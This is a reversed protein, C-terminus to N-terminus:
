AAMRLAAAMDRVVILSRRRATIMPIPRGILRLRRSANNRAAETLSAFRYKFDFYQQLSTRTTEDHTVNYFCLEAIDISAFAGSGESGGIAIVQSIQTSQPSAAVAAETFSFRDVYLRINGADLSLCFAYWFSAAIAKESFDDTPLSDRRSHGIARPDGANARAYLGFGPAGPATDDVTFVPHNQWRNAGTLNLTIARFRAFAYCTYATTPDATGIYGFAAQGVSQMVDDSGDFRLAPLGSPTAGTLFAPKKSATSQSLNALGSGSRNTFTAVADGSAYSESDAKYWGRLNAFDSPVAM